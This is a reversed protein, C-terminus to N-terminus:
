GGGTQLRALRDLPPQCSSANTYSSSRISASTRRAWSFPDPTKKKTIFQLLLSAEKVLFVGSGMKHPGTPRHGPKPRHDGPHRHNTARPENNPFISKRNACRQGSPANLSSHDV